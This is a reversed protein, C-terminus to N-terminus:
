AFTIDTLVGEHHLDGVWWKGPLFFGPYDSIMIICTNGVCICFAVYSIYVCTETFHFSIKSIRSDHSLVVSTLALSDCLSCTSLAFHVRIDLNMVVIFKYYPLTTGTRLWMEHWSSTCTLPLLAGHMRLMPVLHLHITLKM